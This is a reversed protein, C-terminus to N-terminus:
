FYFTFSYKCSERFSFLSVWFLIGVCTFSENINNSLRTNETQLQLWYPILIVIERELVFKVSALITGYM